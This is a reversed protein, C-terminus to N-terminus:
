GTSCVVFNNLDVNILLGNPDEDDPTIQVGSGGILQVTSGGVGNITKVINFCTPGGTLVTSDAPPTEGGYLAVEDCVIGEGDGVAASITITNTNDDQRIDCNYGPKLKLPGTLCATQVFIPIPAGSSSSSGQRCQAPPTVHTRDFNALGISRVYTQVLSQVRAPEIQWRSSTFVLADGEAPILELLDQLNGTVLFGEWLPSTGCSLSASSASSGNGAAGADVYEIVFEPPSLPRTFILSVVSAAPATTRFEFSIESGTNRVAYLYITHLGAQYESYLGMIAGFDVIAATPLSDATASAASGQLYSQQIFPYARYSNDNYLGPAAM